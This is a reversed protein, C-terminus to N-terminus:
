RPSVARLMDTHVNGFPVVSSPLSVMSTPPVMGRVPAGSQIFTPQLSPVVSVSGVCARPEM